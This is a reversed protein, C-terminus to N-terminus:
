QNYKFLSIAPIAIILSSSFSSYSIASNQTKSSYLPLLLAIEKAENSKSLKEPLMPIVRDPFYISTARELAESDIPTNPRVYHTVDAIHIGIEWNGNTIEGTLKDVGVSNRAIRDASITGTKICSGNITTTGGSLGSVTVYGSLNVKSANITVSEASQNITSIISGKEVRSEISTANQTIRTSLATDANQRATVESSISNANQTIRTSLASDANTRDTVESSISNANQTIRTSLASDANQRATVETSISNTNQTIRTSLSSVQSNVGSQTAYTQSVESTIQNAMVSIAANMQVTTSYNALTQQAELRIEQATQTIQTGLSTVALEIAYPNFISIEQAFRM